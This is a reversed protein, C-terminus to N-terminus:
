WDDMWGDMWGGLCEDMLGITPLLFLPSPFISIQKLIISSSAIFINKSFELNKLSVILHPDDNRLSFLYPAVLERSAQTVLAQAIVAVWPEM